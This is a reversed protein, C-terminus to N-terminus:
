KCVRTVSQRDSPQPNSDRRGREFVGSVSDHAANTKEGLPMTPSHGACSLALCSALVNGTVNLNDTGTKKQSERNPRSFDPLRNVADAEQGRLTHTYLNMTLNIDGHRMLEQAIKPHVGSAALLSGTTHRLSHFDAQRGADDIYPIAPELVNGNNDTVGTAALDAKLMDATRITLRKHTGGFARTMPTKNGLFEKLVTATDQRLPLTDERRHKSYGAKVTVTLDDFDFDSVKLNRIENARLGTEVALRYILSREYGSMGFCEPGAAAVELLRRVEDAEFSRRVRRVDVRTNQGKLHAVPSDNTRQDSVLWNFFGKIATLYHNCSAPSLGRHKRDALHRQVKSAQVDSIFSFKCESLVAWVRNHTSITYEETCGRALLLQRYDKLHEKLPKKRHQKYRDVVGAKALAAEKELKAAYQQTAAKDKFGAVRREIGDADVYKIHWKASQKSVTKGTELKVKRKRKFVSAM